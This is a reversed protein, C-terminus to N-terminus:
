TGGVSSDISGGDLARRLLLYDEGLYFELLAAVRVILDARLATDADRELLVSVLDREQMADLLARTDPRVLLLGRV